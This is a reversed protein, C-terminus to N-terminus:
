GGPLRGSQSTSRRTREERVGPCAPLRIFLTPSFYSSDRQSRQKHATPQNLSSFPCLSRLVVFPFEYFPSALWSQPTTLGVERVCGGRFYLFSPIARCGAVYRKNALASVVRQRVRGSHGSRNSGHQQSKQSIPYEPCMPSRIATLLFWDTLDLPLLQARTLSPCSPGTPNM